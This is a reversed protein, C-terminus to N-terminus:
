SVGGAGKEALDQIFAETRAGGDERRRSGATWLREDVAVM